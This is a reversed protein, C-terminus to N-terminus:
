SKFPPHGSLLPLPHGAKHRFGPEDAEFGLESEVLDRSCRNNLEFGKNGTFGNDFFQM